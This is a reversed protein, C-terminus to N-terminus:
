SSLKVTGRKIECQCALREDEMSGLFDEEAETFPSLNEMGELVRVVCTGCAGETCAFPIGVEECVEIISSGDKIEFEENTDTFIIKAM